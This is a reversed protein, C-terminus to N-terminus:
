KVGKTMFVYLPNTSDIHFGAKLWKTVTDGVNDCDGGISIIKLIEGNYITCRESRAQALQEPTPEYGPAYGESNTTTAQGSAIPTCVAMGKENDECNSKTGNDSIMPYGHVVQMLLGVSLTIAVL